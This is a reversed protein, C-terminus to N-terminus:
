VVDNIPGNNAHNSCVDSTELGDRGGQAGLVAHHCHTVKDRCGTMWCCRYAISASASDWFVVSHLSGTLLEALWCAKNSNSLENRSLHLSRRAANAMQLRLVAAFM